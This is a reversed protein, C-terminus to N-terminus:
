NQPYPFIKKKSHWSTPAFHHYPGTPQGQATIHVTKSNERPPPSVPQASAQQTSVRGRITYASGELLSHHPTQGEETQLKSPLPKSIIDQLPPIPCSPLIRMSAEMKVVHTILMDRPNSFNVTPEAARHLIGRPGEWFQIQLVLKNQELDETTLCVLLM